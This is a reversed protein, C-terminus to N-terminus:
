KIRLILLPSKTLFSNNAFKYVVASEYQIESEDPTFLGEVNVKMNKQFSFTFALSTAARTLIGCVNLRNKNLVMM